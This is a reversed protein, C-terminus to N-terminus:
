NSDQSELHTDAKKIDQTNAKKIDKTIKIVV